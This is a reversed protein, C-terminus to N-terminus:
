TIRSAAAVEADVADVAAVADHAVARSPVFVRVQTGSGPASEIAITGGNDAVREAMSQLGFGRGPASSAQRSSFGRGDDEIVISTGGVASIFRVTVSRAGSHKRVNTLAEQVVRVLQAEVAPAFEVSAGPEVSVSARIGSQRALHQAYERVITLLDASRNTARLGQIAERVDAYAADATAVIESNEAVAQGLNGHELAKQVVRARMGVVALVQALSDHMERALRNREELVALSRRQQEAGRAEQLLRQNDLIAGIVSGLVSLLDLDDSPSLTRSRPVVVLLGVIAARSRLAVLAYDGRIMAPRASDSSPAAQCDPLHNARLARPSACVRAVVGATADLADPLLEASQSGGSRDARRFLGTAEDPLYIAGADAPFARRVRELIAELIDSTATADSETSPTANSVAETGAPLEAAGNGQSAIASLETLEGALWLTDRRDRDFLSFVTRTLLVSGFFIGLAFLVSGPWAHLFGPSIVHRAYDFILLVLAPITAIAWRLRNSNM